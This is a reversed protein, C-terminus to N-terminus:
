SAVFARYLGYLFVAEALIFLGFSIQPMLYYKLYFLFRLGNTM